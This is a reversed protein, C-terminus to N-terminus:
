QGGQRQFADGAVEDSADAFFAKGHNIASPMRGYRDCPATDHSEMFIVRGRLTHSRMPNLGHMARTVKELNRFKDDPNVLAEYLWVFYAMDWQFHFGLGGMQLLGHEGDELDEAICIKGCRRCWASVEALLLSGDVDMEGWPHKRMSKTSDVRIGDFGYRDCYLAVASLVYSRVEVNSFDPRPGWPTGQGTQFYAPGLLAMSPDKFHNAVFDLIVALGRSHAENVFNIVDSPSGYATHIAFLSLPDYGWSRRSHVQMYDQQLPMLSIGTMGLDKIHDLGLAAAALTGEPTFTGLHM